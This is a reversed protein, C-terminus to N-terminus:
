SFTFYTTMNCGQLMTLMISSANHMTYSIYVCCSIYQCPFSYSSVVYKFEMSVKPICPKVYDQCEIQVRCLCGAYCSQYIIYNCSIHYKICPVYYISISGLLMDLNFLEQIGSVCRVHDIMFIHHYPKCVKFVYFYFKKTIHAYM